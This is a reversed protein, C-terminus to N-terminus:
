YSSSDLACLCVAVIDTGGPQYSIVRVGGILALSRAPGSVGGPASIAACAVPRGVAHLISLLQCTVGDIAVSRM